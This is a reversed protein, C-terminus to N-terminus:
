KKSKKVQDEMRKIFRNQSRLNLFLVSCAISIFLPFYVEHTFAHLQALNVISFVLSVTATFGWIYQLIKTFV